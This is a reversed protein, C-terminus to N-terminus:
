GNARDHDGVMLNRTKIDRHVIGHAHATALASCVQVAIHIARVPALREREQLLERLPRGRVHEMVIFHTRDQVGVDYVGVINPHVLRATAQAEREFRALFVPDYNYAGLLVKIAVRRALLRDYGEYVEGMGGSGLLRGRVYRGQLVAAITALSREQRADLRARGRETRPPLGRDASTTGDVLRANYSLPRGSRCPTRLQQAQPLLHNRVPTRLKCAPIIFSESQARAWPTCGLVAYRHHRCPISGTG